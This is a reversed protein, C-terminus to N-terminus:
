NTCLQDWPKLEENGEYMRVVHINIRSNIWEDIQKASTRIWSQLAMM